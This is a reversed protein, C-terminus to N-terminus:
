PIISACNKSFRTAEGWVRVARVTLLKALAFDAEPTRADERYMFTRGYVKVAKPVYGSPKEGFHRNIDSVL